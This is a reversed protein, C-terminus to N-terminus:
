SSPSAATAQVTKLCEAMIPNAQDESLTLKDRASYKKNIGAITCGCVKGAIDQPVGTRTASGVCSSVFNQDFKESFAQESKQGCATILATLCVLALTTRLLPSSRVSRDTVM